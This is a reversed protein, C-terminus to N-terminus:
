RFSTEGLGLEAAGGTHHPGLHAERAAGALTWSVPLNAMVLTGTVLLRYSHCSALFIEM